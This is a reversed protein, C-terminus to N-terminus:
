PTSNKECPSLDIGNREVLDFCRADHILGDNKQERRVPGLASVADNMLIM